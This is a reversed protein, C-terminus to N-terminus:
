MCKSTFLILGQMESSSFPAFALGFAYFSHINGLSRFFFTQAQPDFVELYMLCWRLFFCSVPMFGNKYFGPFSCFTVGNSGSPKRGRVGLDYAALHM